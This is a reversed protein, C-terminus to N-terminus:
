LLLVKVLVSGQPFSTEIQFSHSHNIGLYAMLLMTSNVFQNLSPDVGKYLIPDYQSMYFIPVLDLEKPIFPLLYISTHPVPRATYGHGSADDRLQICSQHMQPM